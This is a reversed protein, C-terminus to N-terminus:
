RSRGARTGQVVVRVGVHDGIYRSSMLLPRCNMSVARSIKQSVPLGISAMLDPREGSPALAAAAVGARQGTAVRDVVGDESWLPM